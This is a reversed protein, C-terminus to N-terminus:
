RRTLCANRSVKQERESASVRVREASEENVHCLKRQLIHLANTLKKRVEFLKRTSDCTMIRYATGERKM